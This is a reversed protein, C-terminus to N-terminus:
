RVFGSFRRPRNDSSTRVDGTARGPSSEDTEFEIQPALSAWFVSEYKRTFQAAREGGSVQTPRTESVRKPQRLQPQEQIAPRLTANMQAELREAVSRRAPIAKRTLMDRRYKVHRGSGTGSQRGARWSPVLSTPLQAREEEEESRAAELEVFISRQQQPADPQLMNTAPALAADAVRDLADGLRQQARLLSSPSPAFNSALSLGLWAKLM